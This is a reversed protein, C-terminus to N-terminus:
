SIFVYPLRRDLNKPVVSKKPTLNGESENNSVVMGDSIKIKQTAGHQKMQM